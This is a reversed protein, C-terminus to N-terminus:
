DIAQRLGSLGFLLRANETTASAIREPSDDRIRSIVEAVHKVYAPENRRGRHPEPSLYPCDTEVLLRDLPVAKAVERLREAKSFTVPGSIGIFFGMAIVDDLREPGAAYTHLVGTGGWDRLTALVDEHADRSHIVVPRGLASALALQDQFAQRQAPRPSYDRYYDLGIEGIAVVKPHHALIRLEELTDESATGADHPHIGVTAYIFDYREALAVSARSSALNTGINVIAVLDAEQARRIVAERDRNFQPFDLHAHSDILPM